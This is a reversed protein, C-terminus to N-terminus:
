VSAGPIWNWMNYSSANLNNPNVDVIDPTVPNTGRPHLAVIPQRCLPCTVLGGV